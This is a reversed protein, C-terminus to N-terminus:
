RPARRGRSLLGIALAALAAVELALLIREALGLPVAWWWRVGDQGADYIVWALYGLYAYSALAFGLAAYALRGVGGHVARRTLLIVALPLAVFAVLSAVRHVHGSASPGVSWDHKPFIAVLTMGVIWAVLLWSAPHRLSLVSRRLLGVLIAVSGIVLAIVASTFIVPNTFVYGSITRRYADEGSTLDLYLCAAAAIVVGLLGVWGSIPPRATRADPHPGDREATTVSAWGAM